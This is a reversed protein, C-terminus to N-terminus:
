TIYVVKGIVFAPDIQHEKARDFTKFLDLFLSRIEGKGRYVKNVLFVVSDESYDAVIEGVNRSTWATSHHQCVDRTEKSTGSAYAGSGSFTTLVAVLISLVVQKM